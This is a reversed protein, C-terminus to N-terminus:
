IRLFVNGVSKTRTDITLISEIEKLGTGSGKQTTRRPSLNLSKHGNQRM